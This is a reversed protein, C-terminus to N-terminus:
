LEHPTGHRANEIGELEHIEGDTPAHNEEHAHDVEYAAELDIEYREMFTDCPHSSFYLAPFGNPQIFSYKVWGGKVDLVQVMLNDSFPNGKQAKLNYRYGIQPQTNM